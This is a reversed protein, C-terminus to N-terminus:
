INIYYLLYQLKKRQVCVINFLWSFNVVRDLLNFTCLAFECGIDNYGTPNEVYIRKEKKTEKSKQSRTQKKTKKTKLNFICIRICM